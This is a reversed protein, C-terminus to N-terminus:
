PVWEVRNKSGFKTILRRSLTIDRLEVGHLRQIWDEGKRGAVITPRCLIHAYESDSLSLDAKLQAVTPAADLGEAIFEPVGLGDGRDGNYNVSMLYGQPALREALLAIYARLAHRSMEPFSVTNVAVDCPVLWDARYNPLFVLDAANAASPEDGPQYIYARKEPFHHLLFAASYILTEPLDIITYRVRRARLVAHALGGYGAGIEVVHQDDRLGLRILNCLYRQIDVTVDNVVGEPLQLGISQGLAPIVPELAWLAPDVGEGLWRWHDAVWGKSPDSNMFLTQGTHTGLFIDCHLRISCLQEAPLSLVYSMARVALNWPFMPTDAPHDRDREAIQSLIAARAAEIRFVNSLDAM